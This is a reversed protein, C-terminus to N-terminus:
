AQRSRKADNGAKREEEKDQLIVAKTNTLRAEAELKEAKALLEVEKASSKRQADLTKLNAELQKVKASLQEIARVNGAEVAKKLQEDTKRKAQDMKTFLSTLTKLNKEAQAYGSIQIDYARTVLADSM